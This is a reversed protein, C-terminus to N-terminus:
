RVSNAAALAQAKGLSSEIRITLGAQDWVLTNGALRFTDNQYQGQRDLYAFDHPAGSIWFGPNGNVRVDEVTTGPGLMKGFLDPQVSGPFEIVLLGVGTQAAQPLTPQPLYVLAVAKRDAMLYVQDPQGLSRPVLVHYGAAAQAQDLTVQRGLQLREGLATLTGTPTPSPLTPVRQIVVGKLGLWGAIANRSSPVAALAGAVILAIAAAALALRPPSWIFRSPQRQIRGRVNAAIRVGTESPYDLQRGLAHLRQELDVV